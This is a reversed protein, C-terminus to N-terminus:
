IAMVNHAHGFSQLRSYEAKWCTHLNIWIRYWGCVWINVMDTEFRFGLECPVAWSVLYKCVLPHCYLPKVWSSVCDIIWVCQHVSTFGILQRTQSHVNHKCKGTTLWNGSESTVNLQRPFCKLKSGWVSDSDVTFPNDSQVTINPQNTPKLPHPRPRPTAHSGTATTERLVLLAAVRCVDFVFVLQQKELSLLWSAGFTFVSWINQRLKKWLRQCHLSFPALDIIGVQKSILRRMYFHTAGSIEEGNIPFSAKQLLVTWKVTLTKDHPNLTNM